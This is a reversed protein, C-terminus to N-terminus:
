ECLQLIYIPNTSHADWHKKNERILCRLLNGLIMNIVEIQGDTQPHYAEEDM